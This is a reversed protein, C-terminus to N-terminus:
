ITDELASVDGAWVYPTYTLTTGATTGASVTGATTLTVPVGVQGTNREFKLKIPNSRHGPVAFTVIM